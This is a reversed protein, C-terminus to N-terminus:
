SRVRCAYVTITDVSKTRVQYMLLGQSDHTIAVVLAEEDGWITQVLVTDGPQAPPIEDIAFLEADVHTTETM